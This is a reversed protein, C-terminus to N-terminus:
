ILLLSMVSSSADKFSFYKKSEIAQGPVSGAEVRVFGVGAAPVEYFM